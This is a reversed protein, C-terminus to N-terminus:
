EGNRKNINTAVQTANRSQRAFGNETKRTKKAYKDNLEKRKKELFAVIKNSCDLAVDNVVM